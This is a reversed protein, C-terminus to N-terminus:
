LFIILQRMIILNMLIIINMSMAGVMQMVGEPSDFTFGEFEKEINEQKEHVMDLIDSDNM